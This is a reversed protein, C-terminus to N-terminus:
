QEKLPGSQGQNVSHTWSVKNQGPPLLDPRGWDVRGELAGRVERVFGWGEPHLYRCFSYKSSLRCCCVWSKRGGSSNSAAAAAWRSPRRTWHRLSRQREPLRQSYWATVSSRSHLHYSPASEENCKWRKTEGKFPVPVLQSCEQQKRVPDLPHGPTVLVQQVWLLNHKTQKLCSQKFCNRQVLTQRSRWVTITHKQPRM